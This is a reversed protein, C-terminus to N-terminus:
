TACWTRYPCRRRVWAELGRYFSSVLAVLHPSSPGLGCRGMLCAGDIKALPSADRRSAAEEVKVKDMAQVGILREVSCDFDRSPQPAPTESRGDRWGVGRTAADVGDDCCRTKLIGQM